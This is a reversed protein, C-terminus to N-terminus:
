SDPSLGFLSVATAALPEAGGVAGKNSSQGAPHLTGPQEPAGQSSVRHWVALRRAHSADLGGGPQGQVPPFASGEAPAGPRYQQRHILVQWRDAYPLLQGRRAPMSGYCPACRQVRIYRIIIPPQGARYLTRHPPPIQYASSTSRHQSVSWHQVPPMIDAQTPRTYNAISHPLYGSFGSYLGTRQKAANTTYSANVSCFASYVSTHPQIAAPCFLLGADEASALCFLLGAM